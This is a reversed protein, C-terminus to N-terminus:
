PASSEDTDDSEPSELAWIEGAPSITMIIASRHRGGHTFWFVDGPKLDFPPIHPLTTM